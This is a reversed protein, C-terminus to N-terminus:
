RGRSPGRGHRPAGGGGGGGGGGGRGHGGRGGFGGPGGRGGRGGGGGGGRGAGSWGGPRGGGPRGGGGGPRFPRRAGDGDRPAGKAPEPLEPVAPDADEPVLDPALNERLFAVTRRWADAAEEPRFEPRTDNFFAHGARPYAIVASGARLKSKLQLMQTLPISADLAGFIGLFPCRLEGVRELNSKHKLPGTEAVVLRGYFDVCAQVAGKECAAHFAYIGGLCFGVVGIGDVRVFPRTKLYRAGAALDGTIRADPLTAVFARLTPVDTEGKTGGERFWLDPVLAAFGEGAFRRAVDRIHDTPGFIEHAIVVAPFPGEGAPRALFGPITDGGHGLFTVDSEVPDAM